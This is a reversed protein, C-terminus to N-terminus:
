LVLMFRTSYVAVHQNSTVEPFERMLSELMTFITPRNLCLEHLGDLWDEQGSPQAVIAQGEVKLVLSLLLFM